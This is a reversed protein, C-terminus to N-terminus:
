GHHREAGDCEDEGAAASLVLNSMLNVHAADPEESSLPLQRDEGSYLFEALRTTRSGVSDCDRGQPISGVRM